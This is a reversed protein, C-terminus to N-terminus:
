VAQRITKANKLRANEIKAAPSGRDPGNLYASHRGQHHGQPFAGTANRRCSDVRGATTSKM